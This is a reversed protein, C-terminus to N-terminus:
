KGWIKGMPSLVWPWPCALCTNQPVPDGGSLGARQRHANSELERVCGSKQGQAQGPISVWEKERDVRTRPQSTSREGSM